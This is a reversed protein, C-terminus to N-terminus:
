IRENGDRQLEQLAFRSAHHQVDALDFEFRDRKIDISFKAVAAAKLLSESILVAGDEGRTQIFAAFREANEFIQSLQMLRNLYPRCDDESMEKLSQSAALMGRNLPTDALSYVKEGDRLIPKAAPNEVPTQLAAAAHFVNSVFVFRAPDVPKTIQRMIEPKM